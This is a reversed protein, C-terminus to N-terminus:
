MYNMGKTDNNVQVYSKLMLVFLCYLVEEVRGRDVM